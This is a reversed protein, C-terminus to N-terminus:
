IVFYTGETLSDFDKPLPKVREEMYHKKAESRQQAVNKLKDAAVKMILLRLKRKKEPTLGFRKKKDAADRADQRKRERDAKKHAKEEDETLM